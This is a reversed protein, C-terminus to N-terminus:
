TDIEPFWNSIKIMIDPDLSSIVIERWEDKTLSAHLLTLAASDEADMEFVNSTLKSHARRIIRWYLIIHKKPEAESM